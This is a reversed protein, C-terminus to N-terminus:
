MPVNELAANDASNQLFVWSSISAAVPECSLNLATFAVTALAAIDPHLGADKPPLALIQGGPVIRIMGITLNYRGRRLGKGGRM